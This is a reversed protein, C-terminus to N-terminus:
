IQRDNSYQKQKEPAIIVGHLLFPQYNKYSFHTPHHIHTPSSYHSTNHVTSIHHPRHFHSPSPSHRLSARGHTEVNPMRLYRIM